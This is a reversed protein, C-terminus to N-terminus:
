IRPQISQFKRETRQIMKQGKGKTEKRIPSEALRLVYRISKFAKFSKLANSIVDDLEYRICVMNHLRHRTIWRKWVATGNESLEKWDRAFTQEQM